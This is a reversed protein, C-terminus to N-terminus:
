PLRRAALGRASPGAPWPLTIVFDVTAAAVPAASEFRAHVFPKFGGASAYSWVV